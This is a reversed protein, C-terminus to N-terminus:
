RESPSPSDSGSRHLLESLKEVLLIFRPGPILAYDETLLYIKGDRAAQVDVSRWDELTKQQQEESGTVVPSMDLIVEPDTQLVGEVSIMPFAIPSDAMVNKGGAIALVENFFPNNGAVCLDELRGAGLTRSVCIMTRPSSLKANKRRLQELRGSLSKALQEGKEPVGCRTGITKFSDIVGQISRHDVMLIPLGLAEYNKVQDGEGELMVVLDPQLALIQELNPDHLGGVRPLKKADEPYNCFRSVGVVRDGLGLEFLVETVSPVTSVIRTPIKSPLESAATSNQSLHNSETKNERCGVVM